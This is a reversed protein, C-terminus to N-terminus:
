QLIEVVEFNLHGKQAGHGEGGATEGSNGLKHNASLVMNAYGTLSTKRLNSNLHFCPVNEQREWLSGVSSIYSNPRSGLEISKSSNRSSERRNQAKCAVYLTLRM